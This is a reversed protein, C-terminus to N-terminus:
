MLKQGCDSCFMDEAPNYATGCNICFEMVAAVPAPPEQANTRAGCELCFADEAPDYPAGCNICFEQVSEPLEPEPGPTHEAAPPTEGLPEPIPEPMPEAAPPPTEDLPTPEPEVDLPPIIGLIHQIAKVLFDFEEDGPYADLWHLNALYYELSKRMSVDEIRFPVVMKEYRLANEIEKSVPKSQNAEKSFILLFVTCNEIGYMIEEAYEAGPMVNRPAIWCRVGNNELARCIADAVKIDASSHRIFVDHIM